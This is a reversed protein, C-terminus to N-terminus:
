FECRYRFTVQRVFHFKYRCIMMTGLSYSSIKISTTCTERYSTVSFPTSPHKINEKLIGDFRDLLSAYYEGTITKGM